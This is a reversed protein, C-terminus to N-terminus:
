YPWIWREKPKCYIKSDGSQECNRTDQWWGQSKKYQDWINDRKYQKSDTQTLLRVLEQEKNLSNRLVVSEDAHPCLDNNEWQIELNEIKGNDKLKRWNKVIKDVKNGDVSFYQFGLIVIMGIAFYTFYSTNSNKM